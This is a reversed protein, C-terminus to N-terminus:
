RTDDGGRPRSDLWAKVESERWVSRRKSIKIPKPFGEDRILTYITGKSVSLSFVLEAMSLLHDPQQLAPAFRAYDRATTM